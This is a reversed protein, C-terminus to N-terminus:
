PRGLAQFLAGVTFNPSMEFDPVRGEVYTKAVTKFRARFGRELALYYADVVAFVLVTLLGILAFDAGGEKVALGLIAAALTISWGKLLFSNGAMRAIAAQLFELHKSDAM